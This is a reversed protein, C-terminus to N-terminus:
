ARSPWAQQRQVTERAAALEALMHAGGDVFQEVLMMQMVPPLALPDDAQRLGVALYTEVGGALSRQGAPVWLVSGDLGNRLPVRGV